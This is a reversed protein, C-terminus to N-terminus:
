IDGGLMPYIFPLIFSTLIGNMGMGLGAFAAAEESMQLARAAGIGHSAVGLAFGAFDHRSVRILRLLGVGIVAGTVGTMIVIVATLSPLGGIKESVRIAIGTTAGKPAISALTQGRARLLRAILVSTVISTACGAVLAGILHPALSRLKPLQRYMPVALAVIAPGLLFHIPAASQMYTAYSTHSVRLALILLTVAVVVPHALASKKLSDHIFQAIAFALFTLSLWLLPTSGLYRWASAISLHASM